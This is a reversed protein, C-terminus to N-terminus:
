QEYIHTYVYMYMCLIQINTHTYMCMYVYVDIYIIRQPCCRQTDCVEREQQSCTARTNINM